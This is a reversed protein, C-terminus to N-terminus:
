YYKIPVGYMRSLHHLLGNPRIDNPATVKGAGLIKEAENACNNHLLNYNPPNKLDNMMQQIMAWDQGSTTKITVSAYPLNSSNVAELAGPVTEGVAAAHNYSDNADSLGMPYLGGPAIAIHGFGNPGQGWYEIITVDLGLADVWYTPSNFTYGYLNSDGGRFGIPDQAIFRQFTASYYRARNFYLGTGDNERGTFQYSNGSASGGTTAAGFPQYTYNTAIPGNNSTVLGSTSGLADALFTSTASDTRTFYEDVRLGTLLNAIVAANHRGNLEQVPNLGDYLFQTTTGGIVKKVRRGFGDYTFSAASGGGIATLHNRADWTYTNTGDSTLNGNADYSLATGNFTTQANDANYSTTGTVNAPLTVATLSGATGTRRGDADYSYTPNGLDSPPSSCSGGTGYTISTVRSDNDYGYTAIVGNPLRLCTHCNANDYSLGV